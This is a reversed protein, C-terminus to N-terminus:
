KDIVKQLDKDWVTTAYDILFELEDKMSRKHLKQLSELLSKYHKDVYGLNAHEETKFPM